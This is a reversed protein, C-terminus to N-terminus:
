APKLDRHIIGNDHLYELGDLLQITWNLIHAFEFPKNTLKQYSIKM